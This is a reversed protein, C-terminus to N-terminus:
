LGYHKPLEGPPPIRGVKRNLKLTINVRRFLWLDPHKSALTEIQDLAAEDDKGLRFLERAIEYEVETKMPFKPYDKLLRRYYGIAEAATSFPLPFPQNQAARGLAYYCWPTYVSKPYKETVFRFQEALIADCTAGSTLFEAQAYGRFRDLAENDVGKAAKVTLKLPKSELPKPDKLCAFTIHLKYEGPTDMWSHPGDSLMLRYRIVDKPSLTEPDSGECAILRTNLWHTKGESTTLYIRLYQADRNFILYLNQPEKSLNQVSVTLAIPELQVIQNKSLSLKLELKPQPKEARAPAFILGLLSVILGLVSVALLRFLFM